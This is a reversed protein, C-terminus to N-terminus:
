DVIEETHITDLVPRAIYLHYLKSMSMRVTNTPPSHIVSFNYLQRLNINAAQSFFLQSISFSLKTKALSKELHPKAELITPAKNTSSIQESHIGQPPREQAFKNWLSQFTVSSHGHVSLPFSREYHTIVSQSTSLIQVNLGVLHHLCKEGFHLKLVEQKRM